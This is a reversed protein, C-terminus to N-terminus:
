EPTNVKKAKISREEKNRKVLDKAQETAIIKNPNYYIQIISQIAGAILSSCAWYFGAACSVSFGIFLSIFPMTLMMGGMRPADPNIRKQIQMSVISTLMAAAFALIPIIWSLEFGKGPESSFINIDFNPSDTLKIGFFNFNINGMEQSISNSVSALGKHGLNNIIDVEPYATNNVIGAKAALDTAKQILDTSVGAIYKLPSLVVQYVGLMIPLRILMPLCGSSMSINEEQYLKQLETSYRQKDDGYKKKLAEMKPRIRMQGVSSKQTKISLPIMLLNVVLTFMFVSWAFSGNFLYAFQQLIWGLPKLIFDFM